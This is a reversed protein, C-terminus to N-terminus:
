KALEIWEFNNDSKRVCLLPKDAIKGAGKEVYFTGRRAATCAPKSDTSADQFGIPSLSSVPRLDEASTRQYFLPPSGQACLLIKTEKTYSSPQCGITKIGWQGPLHESPLEVTELTHVRLDLKSLDNTQGHFQKQLQEMESNVEKYGSVESRLQGVQKGLDDANKRVAGIDKTADAINNKGQAVANDINRKGEAITSDIQTKGAELAANTNRFFLYGFSALILAAIAGLWGGWRMLRNAVAETIEM